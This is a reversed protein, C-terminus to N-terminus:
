HGKIGQGEVTEAWGPRRYVLAICVFIASYASGNIISCSMLRVFHLCGASPRPSPPSPPLPSPPPPPPPPCRALSWILQGVTFTDFKLGCMTPEMASGRIRVRGPRTRTTALAKAPWRWRWHRRRGRFCVYNRPHWHKVTTTHLLIAPDYAPM